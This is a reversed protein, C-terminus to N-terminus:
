RPPYNKEFFRLYQSIDKNKYFIPYNEASIIFDFFEGANELRTFIYRSDRIGLMYNTAKQSNEFNNVTIMERKEDLLLSNIMLNDLSHYKTNHDSIKVKLADVDVLNGDVILVYFHVAEPDYRYLKETLDKITTTDTSIPMGKSDKQTSLFALVNEAMPRIDSQPYEKIVKSIAVVLSDVIEIKGLALARLYDFRPM